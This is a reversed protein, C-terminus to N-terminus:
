VPLGRAGGEHLESETRPPNSALASGAAPTDEAERGWPLHERPTLLLPDPAPAEMTVASTALGASGATVHERWWTQASPYLYLVAALALAAVVLVRLIRSRALWRVDDWRSRILPSRTGDARYGMDKQRVHVHAGRRRAPPGTSPPTQDFLEGLDSGM